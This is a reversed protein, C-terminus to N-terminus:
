LSAGGTAPRQGAVTAALVAHAQRRGHSDYDAAIRRAERDLIVDVGVTVVVIVYYMAERPDRLIGPCRVDVQDLLM